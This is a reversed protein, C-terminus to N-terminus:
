RQFGNGQSRNVRKHSNEAQEIMNDLYTENFDIDSFELLAEGIETMTRGGIPANRLTEVTAYQKFAKPLIQDEVLNLAEAFRHAQSRGPTYSHHIENGMDEDAFFFNQSKYRANLEKLKLLDGQHASALPNLTVTADGVTVVKEDNLSIVTGGKATKPKLRNLVKEYDQLVQLEDKLDAIVAKKFSEPEKIPPMQQRLWQAIIGDIGKETKVAEITTRYIDIVDVIATRKDELAAMFEEDEDRRDVFQMANKHKKEHFKDAFKGM